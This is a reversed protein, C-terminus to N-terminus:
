HNTWAQIQFSLGAPTNLRLSDPEATISFLMAHSLDHIGSGDPPALSERRFGAHRQLHHTAFDARHLYSQRVM